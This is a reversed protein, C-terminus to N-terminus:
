KATWTGPTGPGTKVYLTGTDTRLFLSGLAITNVESKAPLTGATGPDGVGRLVYVNKGLLIGPIVQAM